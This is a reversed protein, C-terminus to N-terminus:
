RQPMGAFARFENATAPRRGLVKAIAVANEVSKVNDDMVDDKHPHWFYQDEMGIKVHLGLMMSMAVLYSSGRGSGTVMIQSNPTIQRIQRVHNILIEAMAMENFMPTGGVHYYPLLDWWAPMKLIGTDVVFSRALDIDGDMYCALEPKVGNEQCYAVEAQIIKKGQAGGGLSMNVPTFECISAMEKVLYMEEEWNPRTCLSLDFIVDNGYKAKIPEVFRHWQKVWDQPTQGVAHYHVCCAGAEVCQMSQEVINKMQADTPVEGLNPVPSGKRNPPRGVVAVKIVVAEPINWRPQGEFDFGASPIRVRQPIDKYDVAM